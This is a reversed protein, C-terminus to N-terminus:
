MVQLAIRYAKVFDTTVGVWEEKDIEGKNDIDYFHYLADMKPTPDTGTAPFGLKSYGNGQCIDAIHQAPDGAYRETDKTSCIGM